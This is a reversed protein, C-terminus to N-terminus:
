ANWRRTSPIPAAMPCAPSSLAGPSASPIPPVVILPAGPALDPPLYSFMRLNGPNTGFGTKERPEAAAVAAVAIIALLAAGLTCFVNRKFALSVSTCM